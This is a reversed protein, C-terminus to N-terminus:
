KNTLTNRLFDFLVISKCFFLYGIVILVIAMTFIQKRTIKKALVPFLPLATLQSIALIGSFLTFEAGGNKNFDYNFFYIGLSTTIYYGTNFLFIAVIIVLLQDNKIIIRVVDKLSTKAQKIDM